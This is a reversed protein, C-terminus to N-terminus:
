DATKYPNDSLKTKAIGLWLSLAVPIILLIFRVKGANAALEAQYNETLTKQVAPEIVAKRDYQSFEAFYEAGGFALMVGIMVLCEFFIAATVPWVSRGMDHLRKGYVAYIMYFILFPFILGIVFAINSEYGLYRLLANVGTVFVFLGIVGLWFQKQDICGRQTFFLNKM